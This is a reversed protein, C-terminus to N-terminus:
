TLLGLGRQLFVLVVIQLHMHAHRYRGRKCERHKGVRNVSLAVHPVPNPVERLIRTQHLVLDTLLLFRVILDALEPVAELLQLLSIEIFLNFLVPWLLM